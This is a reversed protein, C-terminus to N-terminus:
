ESGRLAYRGSRMVCELAKDESNVVYAAGKWEAHWKKQDATLKQASKIKAGDKIELLINEGQYGVLIDPCGDGVYHLPQVSAGIGRLAKIIDMQNDDVKAARRM